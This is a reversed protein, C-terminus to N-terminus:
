QIMGGKHSSRRLFDGGQSLSVLEVKGNRTGFCVALAVLVIHALHRFAHEAVLFPFEITFVDEGSVDDHQAIVFSVAEIGVHAFDGLIFDNDVQIMGMCSFVQYEFPFDDLHTGRGILFYFFDCVGHAASASAMAFSASASAAFFSMVVVAFVSAASASFASVAM